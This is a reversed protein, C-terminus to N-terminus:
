VDHRVGKFGLTTQTVGDADVPHKLEVKDSSLQSLVIVSIKEIDSPTIAVGLASDLVLSETMGDGTVSQIRRYFVTGNVLEIRLDRFHAPVDFLSYGTWEVTMTTAGSAMNTVLIFDSQWSPVWLTAMRGRLWYLLSRLETNEDRGCVSWQASVKYFARGPIDFVAVPATEVDISELKREFTRRPEKSWDPRMELVPYGRYTASPAQATFDCPPEIRFNVTRRGARDTWVTEEPQADLFALRVPYVAAGASFDQSTAENVVLGTETVSVITLLDWTQVDSRLLVKGDEVFDFGETRCPIFNAGAGLDASLQQVDPWIPLWWYDGSNAQLLNDLIRRRSGEAVVRFKFYRRPSQRLQRKQVRGTRAEMVNTLWELSEDVSESWDATIPWLPVNGAVYTM